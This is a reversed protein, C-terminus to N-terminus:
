LRLLREMKAKLYFLIFKVCSYGISQSQTRNYSYRDQIDICNVQLQMQIHFLTTIIQGSKIAILFCLM